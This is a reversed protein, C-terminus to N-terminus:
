LRGPLASGTSPTAPLNDAPAVGLTRNEETEDPTFDQRRLSPPSQLLIQGCRYIAGRSARPRRPVSRAGPRLHLVQVRRASDAGSM